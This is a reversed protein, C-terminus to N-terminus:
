GSATADQDSLRLLRLALRAVDDFDIIFPIKAMRAHTRHLRLDRRESWVSLLTCAAAQLGRPTACSLHNGCVSLCSRGGFYERIFALSTETWHFSEPFDVIFSVRFDYGKNPSRPNAPLSGTTVSPLLRITHQNYTSGSM